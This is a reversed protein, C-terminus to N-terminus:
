MTSPIMKLLFFNHLRCIKELLYCSRIVQRTSLNDELEATFIRLLMPSLLSGMAEGNIEIYTKGDFNFHVRKTYLLILERM